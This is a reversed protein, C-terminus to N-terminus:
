IISENKLSKYLYRYNMSVPLNNKQEYEFYRELTAKLKNSTDKYNKVIDEFYIQSLRDSDWNKTGKVICELFQLGEILSEINCLLEHIDLEFSIQESM